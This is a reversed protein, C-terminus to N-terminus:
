LYAGSYLMDYRKRMDQLEQASQQYEDSTYGVTKALGDREVEKRIMKARTELETAIRLRDDQEFM